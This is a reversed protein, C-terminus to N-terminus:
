PLYRNGQGCAPQNFDISINIYHDPYFKKGKNNNTKKVNYHIKLNKYNKKITKVRVVRVMPM